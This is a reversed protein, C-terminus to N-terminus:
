KSKHQLFWTYLEDTAYAPEWSEHAVGAYETYKPHGGAKKLAEIMSRSFQVPVAPDKDGHFCWCPIDKITEAWAVDGGGCIPAIAAWRKPYKNALAWTGFGGMSLGTLYTRQPDASYEKTVNDFGMLGRGEFPVGGLVLPKDDTAFPHVDFGMGVRPQGSM